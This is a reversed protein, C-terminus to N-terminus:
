DAVIPQLLIVIINKNRKGVVSGGLAPNEAGAVGQSKANVESNEFGAVVITDGSNVMIRQLSNRTDLDPTQMISTGSTVTNLSLLSSMDVAYQLLMRNGDMIHPLLSMSFGSNVMGATLSTTAIGTTIATSSSAVYSTQRGVQIPAPQNNLTTVSASTVTSVRGQTALAEIIAKSGAWAKIGSNTNQGATSLISAALSGAGQIAAVGSNLTMGFNNSLSNYVAEWNIGYSDTNNLDISLVRVNVVVQKSLAKNQQEVFKEVANVVAPTDTVTITGLSAAVVIKGAPTLMAKVSEEIGKWVSLGSFNVGSNQTSSSSQTSGSTASATSGAGTASGGSSSSTGVKADMSTDGPLAAIRLTRSVYRFLRIQGENMEWSIGIRSSAVDLFGGLAGSYSLNVPFGGAQMLAGYATGFPSAGTTSGPIVGTSPLPPLSPMAGMQPQMGPVGPMGPMGLGMGTQGPVLATVDPAVIVPIGSLATVREALEQASTFTRNVTIQRALAPEHATKSAKSAAMKRVPIYVDSDLHQAIQAPAASEVKKGSQITKLHQAANAAGQEAEGKLPAIATVSCGAMVGAILLALPTQAFMSTKM